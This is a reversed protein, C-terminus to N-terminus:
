GRELRLVVGDGLSLEIQWRNTRPEGSALASLDLFAPAAPDPSMDVETSLRRKWQLFSAYAIDHDACYRRASLGSDIYDDVLQQWEAARRRPRYPM